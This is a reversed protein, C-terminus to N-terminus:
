YTQVTGYNAFLVIWGILSIIAIALGVFGLIIGTMWLGKSAWPERKKGLFGLM